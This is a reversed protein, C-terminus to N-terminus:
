LRELQAVESVLLLHITKSFTLLVTQLGDDVNIIAKFLNTMVVKPHVVGFVDKLLLARSVIETLVDIMALVETEEVCMADTQKIALLFETVDLVHPETVAVFIACMLLFQTKAMLLLVEM